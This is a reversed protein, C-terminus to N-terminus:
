YCSDFTGSRKPVAAGVRKYLYSGAPFGLPSPKVRSQHVRIEGEEPFYVKVVCVDPGQVSVVFPRSLKRM